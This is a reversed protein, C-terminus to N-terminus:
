ANYAVRRFLIAAVSLVFVFRYDVHQTVGTTWFNLDCRKHLISIKIFNVPYTVFMISSIKLMITNSNLANKYDPSLSEYPDSDNVKEVLGKLWKEVTQKVEDDNSHRKRGLFEKFKTFLNFDSFSYPPHNVIEWRFSTLLEQTIWETHPRGKDHLLLIGCSLMGKRRDQINRRLKKQTNYYEEANITYGKPMFEVLLVGKRNWFVTTM